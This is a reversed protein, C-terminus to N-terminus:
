GEVKPRARVRGPELHVRRRNTSRTVEFRGTAAVGAGGPGHLCGARRDEAYSRGTRNPSGGPGASDPSTSSARRSRVSRSTRSSGVWSPAGGVGASRGGDGASRVGSRPGAADTPRAALRGASRLRVLSRGPDRGRGAASPTHRTARARPRPPAHDQASPGGTTAQGHPLPRRLSPHSRRLLGEDRGRASRDRWRPGRRRRRDGLGRAVSAGGSRTTPHALGGDAPTRRGATPGSRQGCTLPVSGTRECRPALSWASTQPM